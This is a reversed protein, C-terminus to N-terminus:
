PVLDEPRGTCSRLVADFVTGTAAPGPMPLSLAAGFWACRRLVGADHELWLRVLMCMLKAYDCHDAFFEVELRCHDMPTHEIM